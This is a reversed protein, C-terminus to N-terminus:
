RVILALSDKRVSVVVMKASVMPNADTPAHLRAVTMGQTGRQATVLEMSVIVMIRVIVLVLM